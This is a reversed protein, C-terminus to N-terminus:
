TGWRNLHRLYKEIQMVTGSFDRLPVHNDRFVSSTVICKDFPQKIEIVDVNGSADVLLIDLYRRTSSDSDLITVNTFTAIYKPNLLRVIQQIEQQWAAESYGEEADLMQQLRQLLFEYKAINAQRFPEVFNKDKMQVRKNVYAHLMAEADVIADTHQRAIAAM